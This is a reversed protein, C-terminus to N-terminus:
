FASGQSHALRLALLSSTARRPGWSMRYCRLLFCEVQCRWSWPEVATQLGTGKVSLKLRMVLAIVAGVM